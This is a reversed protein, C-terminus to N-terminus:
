GDGAKVATVILQFFGSEEPKHWHNGALVRM